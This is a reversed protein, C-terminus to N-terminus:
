LCLLAIQKKRVDDKCREARSTYYYKYECVFITHENLRIENACYDDHKCTM